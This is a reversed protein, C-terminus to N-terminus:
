KLFHLTATEEAVILEVNNGLVLAWNKPEHGAPFHFAVPFNYKAVIELIITELSETYAPNNTKIKSFDGVLLGECNKFFGSRDLARLLRDLQYKYEGIEEIFLLKGETKIESPTGILNELLTLNGHDCFLSM